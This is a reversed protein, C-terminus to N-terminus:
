DPEQFTRMWEPWEPLPVNMDFTRHWKLRWLGKPSITSVSNDLFLVNLKARHRDVCFRRMQNDTQLVKDESFLYDGNEMPVDDARPLGTFWFADSMLPIRNRSQGPYITRWHNHTDHGQIEPIKEPPNCVWGNLGYSGSFVEDVNEGWASRSSFSDGRPQMASPCFKLNASEYYPQMVYPWTGSPRSQFTQGNPDTYEYYGTFFFDANDEAYLTFLMGWQALNTICVTKKAQEKVARLSPLVISMLLAIIAIVVLLEILTFANKNNKM